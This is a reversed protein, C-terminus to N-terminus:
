ASIIDQSLLKTFSLRTNVCQMCSCDPDHHERTRHSFSKQELHTKFSKRQTYKALPVALQTHCLVQSHLHIAKTVWIHQTAAYHASQVYLWVWCHPVLECLGPFIELHGQFTSLTGSYKKFAAFLLSRLPKRLRVM